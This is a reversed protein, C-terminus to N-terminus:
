SSRNHEGNTLRLQQDQEPQQQPRLQTLFSWDGTPVDPKDNNKQEQIWASHIAIPTCHRLDVTSLHPYRPVVEFLDSLRIWFVSKLAEVKQKTEKEIGLMREYSFDLPQVNYDYRMLMIKLVRFLRNRQYDTATQKQWATDSSEILEQLRSSNFCCKCRSLDLDREGLLPAVQINSVWRETRAQGTCDPNLEAGSATKLPLWEKAESISQAKAGLEAAIRLGNPLKERRRREEEQQKREFRRQEDEERKKRMAAEEDERRKKLRVAEEEEEQERIRKRRQFEAAEEQRLKEIRAAEEMKQQEVLRLAEAEELRRKELNAAAEEIHRQRVADDQEEGPRHSSVESHDKPVPPTAESAQPIQGAEPSGLSTTVPETSKQGPSLLNSEAALSDDIVKAKITDSQTGEKELEITDQPTESSSEEVKVESRTNSKSPLEEKPSPTSKLPLANTPTPLSAKKEKIPPATSKGMFAVPAAGSASQQGTSMNAVRAPGTARSQLSSDSNIRPRKIKKTDLHGPLNAVLEEAPSASRRLRKKTEINSDVPGERKIRPATRNTTPDTRIQDQNSSSSGISILSNRRQHKQENKLDRGSVLRKRPKPVTAELAEPDSLSRAPKEGNVRNLPSPEHDSSVGSGERSSRKPVKLHKKNPDPAKETAKERNPRQQSDKAEITKKSTPADKSVSNPSSFKHSSRTPSDSRSDRKIKKSDRNQPSRGSKGLSSKGSHQEKYRDYAAQLLRVEEGDSGRQRAIEPYTLNKYMRRTPNFGERDLMLQVVRLNNRGIAALMPTNYGERYGGVPNPDPDQDAMGLLLSLCEDHGGKAAALVAEVDAYAKISLIRSVAADDGKGAKDRLNERTPNLYLFDNRTPEARGRGQRRSTPPPPSRASPLSPSARPSKAPLSEKGTSPAKIDKSRRRNDYNTRYKQIEARITAGDDADLDILDIPEEGQANVEKPNVGAHLLLKVVELHGNEVADILPTDNDCNKCELKCGKEILAKVIDANGELSAIQLPTNGANDAENIEDPFDRLHEELSELDNGACAKAVPTRGNKDRRRYKGTM